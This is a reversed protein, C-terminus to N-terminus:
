RKSNRANNSMTSESNVPKENSKGKKRKDKQKAKGPNIKRKKQLERDM